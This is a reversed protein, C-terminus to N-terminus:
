GSIINRQFYERGNSIAIVTMKARRGKEEEPISLEYNRLLYISEIIKQKILSATKDEEWHSKNWYYWGLNEVFIFESGFSDLFRECNGV